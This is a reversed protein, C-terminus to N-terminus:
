SVIKLAFDYLMKFICSFFPPGRGGQGRGWFGGISKFDNRTRLGHKIAHSTNWSIKVTFEFQIRFGYM